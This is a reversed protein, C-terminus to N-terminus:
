VKVCLGGLLSFERLDEEVQAMCLWVWSVLGIAPLIILTAVFMPLPDM